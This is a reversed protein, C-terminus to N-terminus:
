FSFFSFLFIGQVFLNDLPLCIIHLDMSLPITKNTILPLLVLHHSSIHSPFFCRLFSPWSHGMQYASMQTLNPISLILWEHWTEQLLFKCTSLVAHAFPRLCSLTQHSQPGDLRDTHSFCPSHPLSHHSIFHPCPCSRHEIDSIYLHICGPWCGWPSWLCLELSNWQLLDKLLAILTPNTM